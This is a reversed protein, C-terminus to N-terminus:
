KIWDINVISHLIERLHTPSKTNQTVYKGQEYLREIVAPDLKEEASM